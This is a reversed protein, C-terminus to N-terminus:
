IQLARIINQVETTLGNLEDRRYDIRMALPVRTSAASIGGCTADCLDGTVPHLRRLLARVTEIHFDVADGLANVSDDVQLTESAPAGLASQARNYAKDHAPSQSSGIQHNM